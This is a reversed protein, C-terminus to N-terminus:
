ALTKNRRAPLPSKQQRGTERAADSIYTQEHASSQWVFRRATKGYFSFSDTLVNGTLFLYAQLNRLLM